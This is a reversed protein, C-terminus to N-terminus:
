GDGSPLYARLSVLVIDRLTDPCSALLLCIGFKSFDSSGSM